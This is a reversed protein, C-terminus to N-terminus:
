HCFVVSHIHSTTPEFGPHSYKHIIIFNSLNVRMKRILFIWHKNGILINIHQVIKPSLFPRQNLSLHAHMVVYLYQNLWCILFTHNKNVATRNEYFFTLQSIKKISPPLFFNWIWVNFFIKFQNKINQIEWVLFIPPRKNKKLLNCLNLRWTLNSICIVAIFSIKKIILIYFMHCIPQIHSLNDTHEKQCELLFVWFFSLCFRIRYSFDTKM